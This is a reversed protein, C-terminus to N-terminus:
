THEAGWRGLAVIADRLAFGRETLAYARTNHHLPLRYLVGAAELERLRTALMNTGAGLERQLDGYRKPGDLLQEVILLAWRAGLVDLADALDSM